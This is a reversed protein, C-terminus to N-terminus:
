TLCCQTNVQGTKALLGKAAKILKDVVSGGRSVGGLVKSAIQGTPIFHAIDDWSFYEFGSLSGNEAIYDAAEFAKERALSLSGVRITNLTSQIWSVNLMETLTFYGSPDIGNVPDAHAYLYKHLSQPQTNVGEFSDQSWFRGSDPNLYRARNYYLGLDPDWQEGAYLYVNDSTGVHQLLVGFADYFYRDTIVGTDSTLYRVSGLGDYGYYRRGVQSGSHNTVSILDLGYAYSKSLTIAGSGTQTHEEIVQAYGTPNLTDVLYYTTVTGSGPTTVSKRVRNGDADYLVTITRGGAGAETRQVLRNQDDYRDTTTAAVNANLGATTNGNQDYSDGALWDRVNYSSTRAAVKPNTSTRTLRNGVKDYSYGIAGLTAAADGTGASFSENELRYLADYSWETRRATGNQQAGGIREVLASRHGGARLTYTFSAVPVGVVRTTLDQLRQAANYTYSTTAGNPLAVYDLAGVATYGYYTLRGTATASVGRRDEVEFLRNDTDYGYHLEGGASTAITELNGQADHLYSLTGVPTQKTQLRERADYGYNEWWVPQEAADYLRQSARQGMATYTFLAKLAGRARAAASPIRAVLRDHEDYVHEVTEDNFDTRSELRGADDYAYIERAGDPLVRATRRGLEDYEYRTVRDQADTQSVQRGLEDYGYLTSVVAAHSRALAFGADGVALSQDLYQRVEVLRGLADYRHRTIKSEADTQAIVRGLADYTQSTRTGDPLQTSTRRNLADYSHRTTRGLADVTRVLNGAADYFFETARGGDITGPYGPDFGFADGRANLRIRAPVSGPPFTKGVRGGQDYQQHTRNGLADYTDTVRDAADYVTASLLTGAGVPAALAQARTRIADGLHYTAIVRSLSDYYTRTWRDARDKALIRRGEADYAFEETYTAKSGDGLTLEPLEVKWLQGQLDYHNVTVRGLADTLREPRGNADYETSTTTGDPHLTFTLRGEGDYGYETVLTQPSGDALTVTRTEKWVRGQADYLYDTRASSADIQWLLRDLDDYKSETSNGLADIMLELNGRSDYREFRTVRGLADTMTQPLGRSDYVTTTVGGATDTVTLPNGFADYVTTTEVDRGQGDVTMRQRFSTQRGAADYRYYRYPQPDRREFTVSYPNAPDQYEYSRWQGNNELISVVRGEDDYYHRTEYGLRNVIKEVNAEDRRFEVPRGSADYQRLIRGQDDYENRLVQTGSPDHITKLVHALHSERPDTSGTYYGYTTTAEARDTVGVLDGAADYVYDIRAGYPDEIWEVRGAADRHFLVSQGSTHTIQTVRGTAADRLLELRNGLRDTVSELGTRSDILYVTGDDTTYRFRTPNFVAAFPSDAGRLTTPGDGTIAYDPLYVMSGGEVELTGKTRANAARFVVRAQTIPTVLKQSPEVPIGLFGVGGGVAELHMQFTALSDDPFRLTVLHKVPTTGGPALDPSVTYRYIESGLINFTVSDQYWAAGLPRNTRLSVSNVALSWGHGFDGVRLRDRSDYSRTIEIPLGALPLSLDRFAVSFPGIKRKGDILVRVPQSARTTGSGFEAVVRIEHAGNRLMGPDLQGLEGPASDSGIPGAGRAFQAWTSAPENGVPLPRLELRYGTMGTLRAHGLVAVPRIVTDDEAPTSIALLSASEEPSLPPLVTVTVPAVAISGGRNDRAVVSFEYSGPALGTFSWVTPQGPNVPAVHLRIPTSGAVGLDRRYFDIVLPDGDPDSAVAEVSEAATGDPGAYIESPPFAAVVTPAQNAPDATVTVIFEDYGPLIGDDVTLRLTYAGPTSFTISTDPQTAATFVAAGPGSVISWAYSLAAAPAGTLVYAEAEAPVAPNLTVAPPLFSAGAIANRDPGLNVVPAPHASSDVVSVLVSGASAVQNTGYALYDASLTFQGAPLDALQTAYDFVGDSFREAQGIYAFYQGDRYLRLSGYGGDSGTVRFRVPLPQGVPLRAANADLPSLRAAQLPPVLYRGLDIRTTKSQGIADVVWVTVSRENFGYRHADQWNIRYPGEFFEALVPGQGNGQSFEVYYPAVGGEVAVEFPLPVTGFLPASGTVPLVPIVRVSDPVTVNVGDSVFIEGDSTTLRATVSYAGPYSFHHRLEYPAERDAAGVQQGDVFYEVKQVGSDSVVAAQILMGGNPNFYDGPPVVAGPLPSLLRISAGGKVTVWVDSAAQLEGDYATARVLYRGPLPFLISASAPPAPTLEVGSFGASVQWRVTPSAAGGLGDDGITASLFLSEGVYVERNGGLSITPPQNASGAASRWLVTGSREVDGLRAVVTDLGAAVGSYSVRIWGQADSTGSLTAVHLGSVEFEVSMGGLPRGETDLVRAAIELPSGILAAAPLPELTLDADAAPRAASIAGTFGYSEFSYVGWGIGYFPRASEVLNFGASVPLNAAVLTTGPISSFLDASVPESNFTLATLDAAETVIGVYHEFPNPYGSYDRAFAYAQLRRGYQEVAPAIVMLPDGPVGYIDEVGSWRGFQSRMYQAVQLPKDGVVLSPSVLNFEHFQGANLTAVVAGNVSVRTDDQAAIARVKDGLFVVPSAVMVPNGAEDYVWDGTEPDYAYEQYPAPTTAERMPLLAFNKGWLEDPLLQEVLTDCAPVRNPITTCTSGSFVAVPHTATLATGTLDRGNSKFRIVEGENLMIQFPGDFVQGNADVVPHVPDVTCVTADHTGVLAFTGRQDGSLGTDDDFSALFYGRGLLSVPLVLFGDTTYEQASLGHVTVPRDVRIRVATKRALGTEFVYRMRPDTDRNYAQPLFRYPQNPQVTFYTTVARVGILAGDPRLDPVYETIVGRVSESSSVILENRGGTLSFNQLFTVWYDYGESTAAATSVVVPAPQVRVEVSDEGAATGDTSQVSVTLLYRGPTTFSATSPAAQAPEFSVSGQGELVVASWSYLLGETRATGGDKVQPNLSLTSPLSLLRDSGLDVSLVRRPAAEVNVTTQASAADPWTVQVPDSVVESGETNRAILRWAGASTTEWQTAAGLTIREGQPNQLFVETAGETTWTLLASRIPQAVVSYVYSGPSNLAIAASGQFASSDLGSGTVVAASAATTEWTVVSSLPATGAAPNARITATPASPLTVSFVTIQAPPALVRISVNASRGRAGSRDVVEARLLHTATPPANAWVYRWPASETAGLLVDNAFFEVRAVDSIGDSDTPEASLVIEASAAFTAGEAPATLVVQPAARAVVRASAQAADPWAVVREVSVSAGIANYAILRWMGALTVQRESQGTVNFEEGSPSVLKLAAGSAEWVLRAERPAEASLLYDYAGVTTLAFSM